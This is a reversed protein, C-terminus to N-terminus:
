ARGEHIRKALRETLDEVSVRLASAISMPGHSNELLGPVPNSVVVPARGDLYLILEIKGIM